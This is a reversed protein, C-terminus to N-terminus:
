QTGECMTFDRIITTYDYPHLYSQMNLQLNTKGKLEKHIGLMYKLRTLINKKKTQFMQFWLSHVSLHIELVTLSFSFTPLLQPRSKLIETLYVM